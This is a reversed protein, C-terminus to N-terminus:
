ETDEQRLADHMTELAALHLPLIPYGFPGQLNAFVALEHYNRTIEQHTLDDSITLSSGPSKCSYLLHIHLASYSSTRKLPARLIINSSIPLIPSTDTVGESEPVFASNAWNYTPPSPLPIRITPYIAYTTATNMDMYFSKSIDKGTTRRPPSQQGTGTPHSPMFSWSINQDASIVTVQFPPLDRCLPSAASLHHIWADLESASMLGLKSIVFRWEVNAKRAFQVAFNWTQLIASAEIDDQTLWSGVDYLEGRQDVCSAM